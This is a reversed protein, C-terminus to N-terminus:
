FNASASVFMRCFNKWLRAHNASSIRRVRTMSEFNKHEPNLARKAGTNAVCGISCM